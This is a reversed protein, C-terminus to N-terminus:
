EKSAFTVLVFITKGRSCRLSLPVQEESDYANFSTGMEYHVGDGDSLKSGQYYSVYTPYGLQHCINEILPLDKLHVEFKIVVGKWYDKDDFRYEVRGEYANTSGVLRWRGITM